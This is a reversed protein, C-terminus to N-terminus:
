RFGSASWASTMIITSFWASRRVLSCNCPAIVSRLRSSSESPSRAVGTCAIDAIVPWHTASTRCVSSFTTASFVADAFRM